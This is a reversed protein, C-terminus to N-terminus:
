VFYTGQFRHLRIQPVNVVWEGGNSRYDGVHLGKEQYVAVCDPTRNHINSHPTSNTHERSGVLDGYDAIQLESLPLNPPVAGWNRCSASSKDINFCRNDSNQSARGLKAVIPRRYM